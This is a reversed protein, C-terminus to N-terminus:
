LAADALPFVIAALFCALHRRPPAARFPLTQNPRDTCPLGPLLSRGIVGPKPYRQIREATARVVLGPRVGLPLGRRCSRLAAPALQGGM